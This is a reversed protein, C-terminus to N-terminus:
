FYSNFYELMGQFFGIKGGLGVVTAQSIREFMHALPLYSLYRDQENDLLSAKEVYTLMSSSVSVFNAHTILAGKPKGTTGSTYCITALDDTKPPVPSKLNNKGIEKLQELSLIQINAENAKDRAADTIKEIVVIHKLNSTSNMLHMAKSSDDCVVVKLETQLLIFNIAEDGLTDYLPVTVISFAECACATMCWEPRNKAFIGVFNEKAPELGLHVFASGIQQAIEGVQSYKLWKFPESESPKWGLYDGDDLPFLKTLSFIKYTKCESGTQM